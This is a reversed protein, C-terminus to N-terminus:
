AIVPRPMIQRGRSRHGATSLRALWSLTDVITALRAELMQMDSHSSISTACTSDLRVFALSCLGVERLSKATSEVASYTAEGKTDFV